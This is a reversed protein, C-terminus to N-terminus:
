VEVWISCKAHVCMCVKRTPEVKQLSLIKMVPAAPPPATCNYQHNQSLVTDDTVKDEVLSSKSMNNMDLARFYKTKMVDKGLIMDANKIWAKEQAIQGKTETRPIKCMGVIGFVGVKQKKFCNAFGHGWRKAKISPDFGPFGDEFNFNTNNASWIHINLVKRKEGGADVIEQIGPLEKNKDLGGFMTKPKVGTKVFGNMDGICRQQGSKDRGKHDYFEITCRYKHKLQELGQYITERVFTIYESNGWNKKGARM